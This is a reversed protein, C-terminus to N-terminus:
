LRASSPVSSSSFTRRAVFLARTPSAAAMMPCISCRKWASSRSMSQNSKLLWSEFRTMALMSANMVFTAALNRPYDDGHPSEDEQEHDDNGRAAACEGVALRARALEEAHDHRTDLCRLFDDCQGEVVARCGVGRVLDKLVEAVDLSREEDHAGLQLMIWGDRGPENGGTMLEAIVGPM